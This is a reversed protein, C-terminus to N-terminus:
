TKMRIMGNEIIYDTEAYTLKKLQELKIPAITLLNCHLQPDQRVRRQSTIDQSPQIEVTVYAYNEGRMARCVEDEHAYVALGHKESEQVSNLLVKLWSLDKHAVDVESLQRHFVRVYVTILNSDVDVPEVNMTHNESSPKTTAFQQLLANQLEILENLIVAFSTSHGEYLTKLAQVANAVIQLLPTAEQPKEIFASLDVMLKDLIDRIQELSINSVRQRRFGGDATEVPEASKIRLLNDLMDRHRKAWSVIIEAAETEFFDLGSQLHALENM